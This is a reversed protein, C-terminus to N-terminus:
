VVHLMQIEWSFLTAQTDFLSHYMLKHIFLLYISNM